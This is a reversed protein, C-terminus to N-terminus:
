LSYHTQAAYQPKLSKVAHSSLSTRKLKWTSQSITFSDLLHGCELCITFLIARHLIYLQMTADNWPIELSLIGFVLERNVGTASTLWHCTQSSKLSNWHKHLGFWTHNISLHWLTHLPIAMIVTPHMSQNTGSICTFVDRSVTFGESKFLKSVFVESFHPCSCPPCPCCIIKM